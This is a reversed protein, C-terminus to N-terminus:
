TWSNSYKSLCQVMQAFIKPNAAMVEGSKL